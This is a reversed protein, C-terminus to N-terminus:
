PRATAGAQGRCVLIEAGAASSEARGTVSAPEPKMAAAVVEAMRQSEDAPLEPYFPLFVLRSLLEQAARAKIATRGAPPPVVCLSQGQTADFGARALEAMLRRPEDVAVPFVWYTHPNM